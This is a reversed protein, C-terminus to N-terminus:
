ILSSFVTAFDFLESNHCNVVVLMSSSQVPLCCIHMNAKLLQILHCLASSDHDVPSATRCPCTPSKHAHM